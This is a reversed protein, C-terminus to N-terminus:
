HEEWLFTQAKLSCKLLCRWTRLLKTLLVISLMRLVTVPSGFGLDLTKLAMLNVDLQRQLNCLEASSARFSAEHHASWESRPPGRTWVSGYVFSIFLYSCLLVVTLQLELSGM